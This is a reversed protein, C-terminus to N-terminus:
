ESSERIGFANRPNHARLSTTGTCIPRALHSQEMRPHLASSSM